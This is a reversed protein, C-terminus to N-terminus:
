FRFRVAEADQEDVGMLPVSRMWRRQSLLELSVNIAIMKSKIYLYEKKRTNNERRSIWTAQQSLLQTGLTLAKSIAPGGLMSELQSGRDM